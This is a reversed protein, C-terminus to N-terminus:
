QIIVKERYINEESRIEILYIGKQEGSIDLSVTKGNQQDVTSVLQGMCNFICVNARESNLKTLDITLSGNGPNPYINILGQTSANISETGVSGQLIKAVFIDTRAYEGYTTSGFVGGDLVAGTAYVTGSADACIGNGSEYGLTEVSDAVGSISMAWLFTGTNSIKAMYVDSSDAATIVHTGFTATNAFQGTIYIDTGDTGIGRARDYWNGGASSVWLTTGSSDYCSVFIEAEGTTTINYSDFTAYANYEGTVYIKGANDMTIGWAVDDYDSGQSKIWILSGDSAYKAVFMDYYGLPSALTTSEFLAGDSHMGCVYVNGAPDCKLALGEERGASGAKKFWVLSGLPSFKALYFDRGGASTYATGDFVTSTTFYGTTYVNGLNDCAVALAKESYVGGERIAWVVNGSMDYKAVFADNDGVCNMTIASPPFSILTGYGEIEGAVYIASTGDTAIAHAYDGLSGGATRIWTLAGSSTYKALFSDHNGANSITTGSFISNEEYKGAVYVNGTNDTVVGYGYDYAWLGERKSWDFSQSNLNIFLGNLVLLLYIKKM